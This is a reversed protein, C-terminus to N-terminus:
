RNEELVNIFNIWHQIIDQGLIYLTRKYRVNKKM